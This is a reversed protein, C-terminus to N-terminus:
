AFALRQAQPRETPEEASQVLRTGVIPQEGAPEQLDLAARLEEFAHDVGEAGIRFEKLKEQAGGFAPRRRQARRERARGLQEQTEGPRPSSIASRRPM